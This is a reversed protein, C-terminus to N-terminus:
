FQMLVGEGTGDDPKLFGYPSKLIDDYFVTWRPLRVDLLHFDSRFGRDKLGAEHELYEGTKPNFYWLVAHGNYKHWENDSGWYFTTMDRRPLSDNVMDRYALRFLITDGSLDYIRIRNNIDTIEKDGLLTFTNGFTKVSDGDAYGLRYWQRITTNLFRVSDDCVRGERVPLWQWDHFRCLFLYKEKRLSDPVSLSFDYTTCMQSTVDSITPPTFLYDFDDLTSAYLQQLQLREQNLEYDYEWVRWAAMTDKPEGMYMLTDGVTLRFARENSGVAPFLVTYHPIETFRWNIQIMACPVGCARMALTTYHACGKCEMWHLQMMGEPTLLEDCFLGMSGGYAVDRRIQRMIYQAVEPLSSPDSVSDMISTAYREKFYRRWDSLAEDGNRYPLIYKCFDRFSIDKAWPKHWSDFALEIDNILYDDSITDRDAVSDDIVIYINQSDLYSQFVSDPNVEPRALFDTYPQEPLRSLSRPVGYHWRSNDCLYEAAQMKLTDGTNAYYAVVREFATEEGQRNYCSIFLLLSAFAFWAVRGKYNRILEKMRIRNGIAFKRSINTNDM